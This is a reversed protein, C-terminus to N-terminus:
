GLTSKQDELQNIALLSAKGRRAKVLRRKIKGQQSISRAKEARALREQKEAQERALREQKEAQERSNAIARREANRQNILGLAGLGLGITVPDVGM